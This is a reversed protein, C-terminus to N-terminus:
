LDVTITGLVKNESIIGDKVKSSRGNQSNAQGTLHFLHSKPCNIDSHFVAFM